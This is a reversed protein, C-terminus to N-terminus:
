SANVMLRRMAEGAFFKISSISLAIGQDKALSKVKSWITQSRLIELFDHGAMTLMPKIPWFILDGNSRIKVEVGEIFRAERLLKLQYLQRIEEKKKDLDNPWKSEDLIESFRDDEICLLQKKILDWDRKMM